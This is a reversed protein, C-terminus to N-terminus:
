WILIITENDKLVVALADPMIGERQWISIREDGSLMGM